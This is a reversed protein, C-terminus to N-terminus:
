RVLTMSNAVKFRGVLIVRCILAWPDTFPQDRVLLNAIIQMADRGTPILTMLAFVGYRIQIAPAIQESLTASQKAEDCEDLDHLLGERKQVADGQAICTVLMLILVHM